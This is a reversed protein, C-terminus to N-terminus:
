FSHKIELIQGNKPPLTAHCGLFRAPLAVVKYGSQSEVDDM